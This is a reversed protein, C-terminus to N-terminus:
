LVDFLFIGIMILAFIVKMLAGGLLGLLSGGGVKLSAFFDKDGKWWEMLFAGGFLGVIMGPLTFILFGLVGGVISGWVAWKSGGLKKVGYASALYDFLQSLAAIVGLVLLVLWGVEAFGTLLAYLLVGVFVLPPGPVVPFICGFLGALFFVTILIWLLIQLLLNLKNQALKSSFVSM